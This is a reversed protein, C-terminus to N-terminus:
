FFFFFLFNLINKQLFFPVIVFYFALFSLFLLFFIFFLLLPGLPTEEGGRSPGGFQNKAFSISLSRLSISAGFFIM